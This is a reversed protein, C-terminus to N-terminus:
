ATNRATSSASRASEVAEHLAEAVGARGARQLAQVQLDAVQELEGAALRISL